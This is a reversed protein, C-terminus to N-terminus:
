TLLHGFAGDKDTLSHLTKNQVDLISIEHIEIPKPTSRKESDKCTNIQIHFVYISVILQKLSIYYVSSYSSVWIWHTTSKNKRPTLPIYSREIIPLFIYVSYVGAHFINETKGASLKWRFLLSKCALIICARWFEFDYLFLCAKTSTGMTYHTDDYSISVAVRTWIRSSVSQM